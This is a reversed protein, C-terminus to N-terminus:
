LIVFCDVSVTPMLTKVVLNTWWKLWNIYKEFGSPSDYMPNYSVEPSYALRFNWPPRESFNTLETKGWKLVSRRQRSIVIASNEREMHERKQLYVGRRIVTLSDVIYRDLRWNLGRKHPHTQICSLETSHPTPHYKVTCQVPQGDRVGKNLFVNLRNVYEWM